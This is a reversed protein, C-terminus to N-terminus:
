VMKKKEKSQITWKLNLLERIEGVLYLSGTILIHSGAITKMAFFAQRANSAITIKIRPNQKSIYDAIERSSRALKNGTDTIKTFETVVFESSIPLILDIMRRYNKDKKIAIVVPFKKGPFMKKLSSMLAKVKMPNHAGDIIFTKRLKNIIELRGPFNLNALASRITENTVNFSSLSKVATIALAANIRQFDGKLSVKLDRLKFDKAEYDFSGNRNKIKFDDGLILLKAREQKARNRIIKLVNKQTAGTIVVSHRKIIGAKETAIKVLSNGLWDMHDWGINTIISVEPNIVNTADLNGGLGVEIVAIDVKEEAFYSFGLAILIEFYSPYGWHGKGKVKKIIALLRNVYDIFLKDSIPQRNIQIRETIKQLHPSITLGVKYGAQELISATIFATSGKGATGGM